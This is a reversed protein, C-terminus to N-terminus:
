SICSCKCVFFLPPVLYFPLKEKEYLVIALLFLSLSFLVVPYSEVYGFFLQMTPTALVYLLLLAQDKPDTFSIKYCYPLSQYYFRNGLIADVILFGRMM